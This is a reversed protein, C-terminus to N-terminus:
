ASPRHRHPSCSLHCTLGTKDCVKRCSQGEEEFVSKSRSFRKMSPYRQPEPQQEMSKIPKSTPKIWTPTLEDQDNKGFLQAKTPEGCAALCIPIMSPHFRKLYCGCPDQSRDLVQSTVLALFVAVFVAVYAVFRSM